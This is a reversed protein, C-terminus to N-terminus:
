RSVTLVPALTEGGHRRQTEGGHGAGPRYVQARVSTQPGRDVGSVVRDTREPSRDSSLSAAPTADPSMRGGDAEGAATVQQVPEVLQAAAAEAQAERVATLERRDDVRQLCELDQSWGTHRHLDAERGPSTSATRGACTTM